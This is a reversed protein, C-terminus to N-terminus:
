QQQWSPNFTNKFWEVTQTLGGELSTQPEFGLSKIKEVNAGLKKIDGKWSNQTFAVEPQFGLVKLLVEVLKRTSTSVGTGVNFVVDSSALAIQLLCCQM